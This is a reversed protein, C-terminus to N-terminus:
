NPFINCDHWEDPAFSRLVDGADDYLTMARGDSDDSWEDIEIRPVAYETVEGGGKLKVVISCKKYVEVM